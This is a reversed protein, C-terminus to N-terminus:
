LLGSEVEITRPLSCTCESQPGQPMALDKPVLFSEVINVQNYKNRFFLPSTHMLSIKQLMEIIGVCPSETLCESVWVIGYVNSSPVKGRRRAKGDESCAM